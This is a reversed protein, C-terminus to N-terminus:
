SFHVIFPPVDFSLFAGNAKAKSNGRAKVSRVLAALPVERDQTPRLACEAPSAPPSWYRQSLSGLPTPLEPWDTDDDEAKRAEWVSAWVNAM